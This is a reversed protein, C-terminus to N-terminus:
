RSKGCHSGGAGIQSREQVTWRPFMPVTKMVNAMRAFELILDVHDLDRLAGRVPGMMPVVLELSAVRPTVPEEENGGSSNVLEEGGDEVVPEAPALTGDDSRPMSGTVHDTELVTERMPAHNTPDRQATPNSSSTLVLRRRMVSARHSDAGDM